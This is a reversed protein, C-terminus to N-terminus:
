RLLSEATPEVLLVETSVIMSMAEASLEKLWLEGGYFALIQRNREEQNRFARVWVFTEDDELSRFQGLVRMGVEGQPVLTKEEFFKVFADRMGPKIKYMRIEVIGDASALRPRTVDLRRAKSSPLSIRRILTPALRLGDESCDAVDNVYLAHGDASAAIDNPFCFSAGLAAGDENGRSGSGAVISFEGSLSVSYIRHDGRAVVYLKGGSYALHGNNGGPLTVLRSAVGDRSIRVVDGNYFNSAYLNHKEDMAIGNPCALLPSEVFRSSNGHRDIRQISGSGCNAVFLTDEEDIVIGVPRQLGESAFLTVDGDPTIKSVTNGGINAQLLNGKSDFANGSAGFFGEAFVASSGSPAIRWVRTGASDLKGLAAGFDANYVNGSSDLEIGGTGSDIKALTTVQAGEGSPAAARGAKQVAPMEFLEDDLAVNIEWSTITTKQKGTATETELYFPVRLGQVERYDGFRTVNGDDDMDVTKVPLYTVADLFYRMREGSALQLELEIATEGEVETEGILKLGHESKQWDVLPGDVDAAQRLSAAVAAPAAAPEPAGSLPSHWWAVDGDIAQIGTTGMLVFEIRAKDPRRAVTTIPAEVGPPDISLTGKWRISTVRRWADSGGLARFHRDLVEDLTPTTAATGAGVACLSVLAIALLGTRSFVLM